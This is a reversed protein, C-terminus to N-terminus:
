GHSVTACQIDAEVHVLVGNDDGVRAGFAGGIGHVHARDARSLAVDVGENTLHLALARLQREDVLGPGAAVPKVAIEGPLAQRTADDGGRQDRSFRAISHFGILAVGHGEGAQRAGPIKRGDVDGVDRVLGDAIERARSSASWWRLAARNRSFASSRRLSM